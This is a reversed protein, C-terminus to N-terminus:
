GCSSPPIRRPTPAITVEASDALDPAQPTYQVDLTINAWPRVETPLGTPLSWREGQKTTITVSQIVLAFRSPNALRLERGEDRPAARRRPRGDAGAHRDSSVYHPQPVVTVNLIPYNTNLADKACGGFVLGAVLCSAFASWAVDAHPV